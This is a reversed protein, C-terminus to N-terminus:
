PRRSQEQPASGPSIPDPGPCPGFRGSDDDRLPCARCRKENASTRGACPRTREAVRSIAFLGFLLAFAAVAILFDMIM